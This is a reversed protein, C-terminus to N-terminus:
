RGMADLQLRVTVRHESATSAPDFEDITLNAYLGPKSARLFTRSLNGSMMGDTEDDRVIEYGRESLRTRYFRRIDIPTDVGFVLLCRQEYNAESIGPIDLTVAGDPTLADDDDIADCLLAERDGGATAAPGDREVAGPKEQSKGAEASGGCAALAFLVLLTTTFKM